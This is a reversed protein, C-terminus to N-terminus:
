QRTQVILMTPLDVELMVLGLGPVLVKEAVLPHVMAAASELALRWGTALLSASELGPRSDTAM